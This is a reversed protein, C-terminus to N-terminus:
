GQERAVIGFLLVDVIQTIAQDLSINNNLLFRYDIIEKIAGKIMRQVVPLYMQRLQQNNIGSVLLTEILKWEEDIFQEIKEQESPIFHKIDDAIRGNAPSVAPLFVTQKVYIISKLKEQFSLTNDAMIAKRRERIDALSTDVIASILEEKSDFYEYICRKSVGLHRALGSMTFKIGRDRMEEVAAIMIRTRM